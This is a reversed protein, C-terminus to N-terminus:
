NEVVRLHMDDSSGEELGHRVAVAWSNCCGVAAAIMGVDAIHGAAGGEADVAEINTETSYDFCVFGCDCMSGVSDVTNAVEIQLHM